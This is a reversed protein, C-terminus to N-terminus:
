VRSSQPLNGTLASSRASLLVHLRGPPGPRGRGAGANPVATSISRAVPPPRVPVGSRVLGAQRCGVSLLDPVGLRPRQSARHGRGSHPDLCTRLVRWTRESLPPWPAYIDVSLSGHCEVGSASLGQLASLNDPYGLVCRRASKPRPGCRPYPGDPLVMSAMTMTPANINTAPKKRPSM